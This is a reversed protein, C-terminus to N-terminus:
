LFHHYKSSFSYFEEESVFLYWNITELFLIENKTTGKVNEDILIKNSLLISTLIIDILNRDNIIGKNDVYRKFYIMSLIISNKELNKNKKFFSTISNELNTKKIYKIKDEVIYNIKQLTLM